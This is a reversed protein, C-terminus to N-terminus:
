MAYAPTAPGTVPCIGANMTRSWRVNKIKKIANNLDAKQNYYLGMVEKGRHHLPKIVITQM